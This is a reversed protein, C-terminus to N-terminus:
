QNQYRHISSYKWDKPEKCYQHKVPNNHIYQLHNRFDEEDRILHEWFRRQWVYKEGREERSLNPEDQVQPLHGIKRTVFSKIQRMRESFNVDGEPLRMLLHFHDPLLVFGDIEFPYDHRVAEIGQRLVQRSLDDCLWPQRGYTVQTIFYTGGAVKARRYNTM